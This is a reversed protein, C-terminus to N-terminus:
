NSGTAAPTSTAKKEAAPKSKSEGSDVLNKKAGTKFDTEYWGSGKLRFAPASLLKKLGDEGCQPCTILPDDSIKQIAEHTNECQECLYEYIPM